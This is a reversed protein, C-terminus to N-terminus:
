SVDYTIASRNGDADVTATIRNVSDNTDRFVAISGDLGSAKGALASLMLRLAQRLTRSTEVGSARDLLADANENATPVADITAPIDTGTDVLISDVNTDITDIKGDLTTGTDVLIAAIETATEGFSGAAVHGAQLEDWVADAIEAAAGAALELAGLADTAIADADIAATAISAATIANNNISAVVVGDTGTDALISAIETAIEGFSGATVHAAQTEDWVTDSIEEAANKRTPARM